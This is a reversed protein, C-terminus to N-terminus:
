PSFIKQLFKLGNILGRERLDDVAAKGEQTINLWVRRSKCEQSIMTIQPAYDFEIVGAAIGEYILVLLPIKRIWSEQDEATEAARAYKSILYLLKGHEYTWDEEVDVKEGEVTDAYQFTLMEEKDDDDVDDGTGNSEGKGQAEGKGDDGFSVYKKSATAAKTPSPEPSAFAEAATIDLFGDGQFLDDGVKEASM